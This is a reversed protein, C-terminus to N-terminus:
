RNNRSNDIRYRIIAVVVHFITSSESVYLSNLIKFRVQIYLRIYLELDLGLSRERKREEGGGFSRWVPRIIPRDIMLYHQLPLANVM